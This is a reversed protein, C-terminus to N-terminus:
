DVGLRRDRVISSDPILKAAKKVESALSALQAFSEIKHVESSVVGVSLSLLPFREKEGQRNHAEYSGSQCDSEGHFETRRVEFTKIAQEIVPLTHQPQCLIIFDDGGIHGVFDFQADGEQELTEQLIQGLSRLVEDGKEFGYHDNFPKFHDIDIYSVDFHMSQTIRREIESRIYLNGPLGTLPNAGRALFLNRETIAKLLVNIPVTGLYKGNKTVCLDQYLLGQQRAQIKESVQELTLNSEVYIFPHGKSLEAASKHANLAFGYGFRGLLERELFTNRQLMGVVREEQVVPLGNLDPENIFRQFIDMLGSHAKAPEVEQVIDVIFRIESSNNGTLQPRPIVVKERFLNAAPRALYFGQLYDIGLEVLIRLDEAEEVGEAVVKVGMRHCATSISDVLNLRVLARDLQSVFHRDIKVFDPQLVSLMKLGGYGAGFDDIAIRYGQQRYFAIARAFLDYDKVAVAETIELVICEQNLQLEHVLTTLDHQRGWGNLLTEPCINLFLLAETQELQQQKAARLATERCTTDFQALLSFEAAQSFLYGIDYPTAPSQLRALAEYGFIGGDQARFIPQFHSTLAKQDILQCLAEHDLPNAPATIDRATDELQWKATDQM